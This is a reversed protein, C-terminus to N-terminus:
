IHRKEVADTQNGAQIKVQAHNGNSISVCANGGKEHKRSAKVCLQGTKRILDSM